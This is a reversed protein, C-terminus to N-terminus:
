YNFTNKKEYEDKTIENFKDSVMNYDLGNFIQQGYHYLFYVM